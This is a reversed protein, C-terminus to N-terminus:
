SPIDGRIGDVYFNMSVLQEDTAVEGEALFVSGDQKNIPGTFPHYSGATIADIMAQAEARVDEPVAETIEGIVVEGDAMGGWTHTSTWTGDLVAGVRKIYYPAWNDIISAVRPSPKFAAMDSAQGFGIVGPTKAM